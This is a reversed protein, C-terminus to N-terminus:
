PSGRLAVRIVSSRPSGRFLVTVLILGWRKEKPCCRGSQLLLHYDGMEAREKDVM